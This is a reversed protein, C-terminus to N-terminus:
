LPAGSEAQRDDGRRDGAGEVEAGDDDAGGEVDVGFGGLDVGDGVGQRRDECPMGSSRRETASFSSRGSKVRLGVLQSGIATVPVAM